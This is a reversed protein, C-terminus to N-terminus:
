SVNKPKTQLLMRIVADSLKEVYKATNKSEQLLLEPYPDRGYTVKSTKGGNKYFPFMQKAKLPLLQLGQQQMQLWTRLSALEQAAADSDPNDKYKANIEALRNTYEESLAGLKTNYDEMGRISNKIDLQRNYWDQTAYAAQDFFKSKEAINANKMQTDEIDHQWLFHKNQNAIDTQRLINQANIEDLKNLYAGFEKSDALFGQQELDFAAKQAAKQAAEVEIPDSSIPKAMRMANAMKRYEDGTGTSVFRPSNILPAQMQYKPRNLFNKLQKDSQQM